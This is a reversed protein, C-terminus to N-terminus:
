FGESLTRNITFFIYWATLLGFFWTLLPQVKSSLSCTDLSFEGFFGVPISYNQCQEIPISNTLSSSNSLTLTDQFGLQSATKDKFGTIETNYDSNLTDLEGGSNFDNIPTEKFQDNLKKLEDVVPKLDLLESGSGGVGGGGDSSYVPDDKGDGDADLDNANSIGDGDIDPDNYDPLGDLDTDSDICVFSDNVYGCGSQCNNTSGGGFSSGSDVCVNTPDEPCALLSGSPVCDQGVPLGGLDPNNTVDPLPDTYCNGESGMYVQNGGGVDVATVSCSSGDSKTYCANSETVQVNLSDNIDCTDFLPILSPDSCNELTSVGDGDSDGYIEYTWLQHNLGEPPCRKIYENHSFTWFHNPSLTVFSSYQFSGYRYKDFTIKGYMYQSDSTLEIACNRQNSSSNDDPTCNSVQAHSDYQSQFVSESISICESETTISSIGTYCSGYALSDFFPPLTSGVNDSFIDATSFFPVLLGFLVLLVKIM